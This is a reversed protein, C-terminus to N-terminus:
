WLRLFCECVSVCSFPKEGGAIVFDIVTHKLRVHIEALKGCVATSCHTLVAAGVILHCHINFSKM